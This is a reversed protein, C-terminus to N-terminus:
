AKGTEYAEDDAVSTVDRYRAMSHPWQTVIRGSPHRYYDRCAGTNWVAVSDLDRRLARNYAAMAEQKVEIWALRQEEMRSLHRVLYDVQCEIQFIISGNNTNPGYLM